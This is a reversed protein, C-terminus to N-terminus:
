YQQRRQCSACRFRTSPPRSSPSFLALTTSTAGTSRPSPSSKSESATRWCVATITPIGALICAHNSPRTSSDRLNRQSQIGNRVTNTKTLLIQTKANSTQRESRRSINSFSPSATDTKRKWSIWNRRLPNLILNLKMALSFHNIKDSFKNCSLQLFVWWLTCGDGEMAMSNISVFNVIRSEGSKTKKKERILRVGSSNFARNFRNILYPHMQYHFNIDHNGHIAYLKTTAPVEFISKFRGVYEDFQRDNVWNGEDFIDGLILVVDPEFLQIATQFSRFITLLLIGPHFLIVFVKEDAVGQAVQWFSSGPISGAHSHWSSDYDESWRWCKRTRNEAVPM